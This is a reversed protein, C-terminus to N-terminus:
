SPNLVDGESRLLRAYTGGKKWLAAHTGREVVKGGDLVIIEDCDRIASLRHAVVICTCGRRRLNQEIQQETRTDLASTAEDMVLIAPDGVLARALELRQRQGGSLNTGGELLQADYGGPLALIAEHIAADKCARVLESDAVATDWLTLNARISGAFMFIDQDVMALSHAVQARPLDARRQADFLVEGRWPEYLGTILRILTRKGSGSGGVLAVRQGPEVTLNFNEILPAELPSYGFTLNRLELRGSLRRGPQSPESEGAFQRDAPYGLLDDLRNLDGVLDQLTSGLDVLDSVPQQFAAMLSQFAILMGLSLDGHIVRLGGITLLAVTTLTSLVQPVIGIQRDQISLDQLTNLAKTYYGSWRAFFDSELGSAKLTEMSQLGSISIGFAKGYELGLRTSADIRRRAAMRLVLFNLAALGVGIGTLIPDYTLMILVYFVLTILSIATTALKGSLVGAVKDNLDVRSGIEGAQRQAYFGSPLRLTHWLFRGSMGIALKIKLRRLFLLQLHRLTWIMALNLALGVLLPRVWDAMGRVLFEDVFVQTFVPTILGPVVLLFGAIVCYLLTGTSHRLREALARVVSPKQGARVFEPGPEMTLVVGTYSADFEGLSVTRPGSGPDNLYVRDRSFGEVVLFHNFNWFVIYPCPLTLLQELETKYGASKLGYHKAALVMKSAKSGDRSVGCVQRLEPLPVVRGYYGLVIGLSAAGCEVAEM